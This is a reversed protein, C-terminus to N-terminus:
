WWSGSSVEGHEVQRKWLPDAHCQGHIFEIIKLVGKTSDLTRYPPVPRYPADHDPASGAWHRVCGQKDLKEHWSDANLNTVM